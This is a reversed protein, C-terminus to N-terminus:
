CKSNGMHSKTDEETSRVFRGWFPHDDWIRSMEEIPIGKTEPVLKYVFTTMIVVFCGFFIFLGFKLHCLMLTFLQAIIFTSIMNVGVTISQAAPRVELSYIESPVLWGLPGWSWAFGAVYICIVGVVVVSYWHPLKGPIGSTGFEIGIAIAMIIQCVLMQLGGEIFLTRRGFKDVVLISILTSVPKVSGIIVASMLSATSGFGISRFLIPAYFTIVNLGTFQQFFPILIALVLQPRYKRQRLTAWPHKVHKSSERAAVIDNFEAEINHTGRIKVLERKAEELRDREVLSSPSDPLFFSGVLFIVAPVAGLGLSLRWGQGNLLDVFYYNVLNAGFIGITISLQFCMNLAGRYKYPAMESVYIPVSQNACGIGFGLLMRGVILMWMHIALGNLLAGLVFFVGGIMMTARRGLKRTITSAGLGSILATLYLSSTFLTLIQSNFKCYQNSSPKMGAERAYVSPFFKELFSDMSTVGGSVGHDYGFILGGTAALLCTLVVRPTLKGPYKMTPDMDKGKM